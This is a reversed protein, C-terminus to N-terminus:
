VQDVGNRWGARAVARLPDSPFVNLAVVLWRLGGDIGVCAVEGLRRVRRGPSREVFRRRGARLVGAEAAHAKNERGVIRVATHIQVVASIGVAALELVPRPLDDIPEGTVGLDTWGARADLHKHLGDVPGHGHLDSTSLRQRVPNSFIARLASGM